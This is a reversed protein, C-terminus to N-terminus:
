SGNIMVTWMVTDLILAHVLISISAVSALAAFVRIHGVRRVLNPTYWSGLIIGVFYGSMVVGTTTTAFGELTARLSLLTGQLGNGLMILGIGLLLPWAALLVSRM